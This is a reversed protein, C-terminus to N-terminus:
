SAKRTTLKMDIKKIIGGAIILLFVTFLFNITGQFQHVFGKLVSQGYLYTLYVTIVLRFINGVLAIPIAVLILSIKSILSRQTLYAYLVSIATVAIISQIGTCWDVVELTANPLCLTTGDQIIPLGLFESIAYTAKTSIFRLHVAMSKFFIYPMPIMFILYGVPFLLIKSIQKGLLFYILGMITIILSYRRIFPEFGAYGILLLSIGLLIIFLGKFDPQVSSARLAERKMWIIFLSILPILFGHSYHYQNLWEHIMFRLEPFYLFMILGAILGFKLYPVVKNESNVQVMVNM